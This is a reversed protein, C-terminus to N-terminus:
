RAPKLYPLALPLLLRDDSPHGLHEPPQGERLELDDYTVSRGYTRM